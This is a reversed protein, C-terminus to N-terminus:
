VKYDEPLFKEKMKEMMRPWSSIKSWGKKMRDAQLNDWWLLAHGKMRSKAIKVKMRDEVDDCDFCNELASFWDLLIEDDMRGDYMPLEVKVKSDGLKVVKLIRELRADEPDVPEEIVVVFREEDEHDEENEKKDVLDILRKVEARLMRNDAM